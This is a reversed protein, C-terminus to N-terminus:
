AIPLVVTFKTEMGESSMVNIEGGHAKIISDVAQQNYALPQARTLLCGIALIATFAIRKLSFHM